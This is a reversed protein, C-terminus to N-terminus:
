SVDKEVRTHSAVLIRLPSLYFSTYFFYKATVVVKDCNQLNEFSILNKTRM